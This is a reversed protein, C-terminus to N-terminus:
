NEDEKTKQKDKNEEEAFKQVAKSGFAVGLIYVWTSDITFEEFTGANWGLKV